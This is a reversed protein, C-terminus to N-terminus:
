DSDRVVLELPWIERIIKTGEAGALAPMSALLLTPVTLCALSLSVGLRRDIRRNLLAVAFGAIAMGLTCLNVASGMVGPTVKYAVALSPLIAQTAFLDVLTLFSVAAIALLKLIPATRVAPISQTIATTMDILEMLM